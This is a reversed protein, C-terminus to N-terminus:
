VPGPMAGLKYVAYRLKAGKLGIARAGTTQRTKGSRGIASRVRHPKLVVSIPGDKEIRELLKQQGGATDNLRAIDRANHEYVVCEKPLGFKDVKSVVFARSYNFDIHGEVPHPFADQHGYTCIAVACSSTTGAGSAKISKRMHAATLVMEVEKRAYKVTAWAKRVKSSGDGNEMRYLFAHRVKAQVPKKKIM